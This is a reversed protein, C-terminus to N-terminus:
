GKGVKGGVTGDTIFVRGETGAGTQTQYKVQYSIFKFTVDEELTSRSSSYKLTYSVLRVDHFTCILYPHPDDAFMKRLTVVAKKFEGIKRDAPDAPEAHVQTRCYAQFLDASATDIEKTISFTLWDKGKKKGKKEGDEDEDQKKKKERGKAGNSIQQKLGQILQAVKNADDLATAAVKTPERERDRENSLRDLAAIVKEMRGEADEASSAAKDAADTDRDRDGGGLSFDSIEIRDPLVADTAEGAVLEGDADYLELYGDIM